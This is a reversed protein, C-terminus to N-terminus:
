SNKDNENNSELKTKRKFLLYLKVQPTLILIISIFNIIMSIIIITYPAYKETFSLLILKIMLDPSKIITAINIVLFLSILIIYINKIFKKGTNYLIIFIFLKIIILFIVNEPSRSNCILFTIFLIIDSIMNIIIITLLIKKGTKETNNM